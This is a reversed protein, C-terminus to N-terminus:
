FPVWGLECSVNRVADLAAANAGAPTIPRRVRLQRVFSAQFAAVHARLVLPPVPIGDYRAWFMLTRRMAREVKPRPAHQHLLTAGQWAYTAPHHTRSM